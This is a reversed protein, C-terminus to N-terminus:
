HLAVGDSAPDHRSTIHIYSDGSSARSTARRTVLRLLPRSKKGHSFWDTVEEAEWSQGRSLVLLSKHGDRTAGTDLEWPTGRTELDSTLLGM